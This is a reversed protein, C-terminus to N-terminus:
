IKTQVFHNTEDLVSSLSIEGLLVFTQTLAEKRPLVQLAYIRLVVSVTNTGPKIRAILPLRLNAYAYCLQRFPSSVNGRSPRTNM